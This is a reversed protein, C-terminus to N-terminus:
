IEVNECAACIFRYELYMIRQANMFSHVVRGGGGEGRLPGVCAVKPVALSYCRGAVSRVVGYRCFSYVGSKVGNSQIGCGRLGLTELRMNDYLFPSLQRIGEPGFDNYALDLTVISGNRKLM